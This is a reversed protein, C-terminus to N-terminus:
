CGMRELSKPHKKAKNGSDKEYYDLAKVDDVFEIRGGFFSSLSKVEKALSDNSEPIEKPLKPYLIFDYWDHVGGKLVFIHNKGLGSLMFYAQESLLEDGSYIVIPDDQPLESTILEALSLNIATPINFEEFETSPRVDILSISERNKIDHALELVSILNIKPDKKRTESYPLTVSTIMALLSISFAFVALKQNLSYSM